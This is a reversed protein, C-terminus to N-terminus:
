SRVRPTTRATGNSALPFPDHTSCGRRDIRNPSIGELSSEACTSNPRGAAPSRRTSPYWPSPRNTRRPSQDSPRTRRAGSVIRSQGIPPSRRPDHVPWAVPDTAGPSPPARPSNITWTSETEPPDSSPSRPVTSAWSRPVLAARAAWNSRGISRASNRPDTAQPSFPKPPASSVSEADRSVPDPACRRSHVPESASCGCPLLDGSGPHAL